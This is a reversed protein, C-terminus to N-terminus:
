ADHCKTSFRMRFCLGRAGARETHAPTCGAHLITEEDGATRTEDAARQRMREDPVDVHRDDGDVVQVGLHMGRALTGRIKM